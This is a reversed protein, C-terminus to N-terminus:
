AFQMAAFVRQGSGELLSLAFEENLIFTVPNAGLFGKFFIRLFLGRIFAMLSFVLYGLPRGLKHICGPNSGIRRFAGRVWSAQQVLTLQLWRTRWSTKSGIGWIKLM